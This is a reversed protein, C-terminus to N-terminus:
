DFIDLLAIAAKTTIFTPAYQGQELVPERISMSQTKIWPPVNVVKITYFIDEDIDGAELDTSGLHGHAINAQTSSPVHGTRMLQDVVCLASHVVRNVM